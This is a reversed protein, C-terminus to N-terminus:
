MSRANLIIQYDKTQFLNEKALGLVPKEMYLPVANKEISNTIYMAKLTVVPLLGHEQGLSHFPIYRVAPMERQFVDKLVDEQIIHVPQNILPDILLNGTDLFGKLLLTEQETQLLIEYSLKELKQYEIEYLVLMCFSFAILGCLWFYNGDGLTIFIWNIVGGMLMTITYTKFFNQFFGKISKEKFAIMLTLPNWVMHLLIQYLQYDSLLLFLVVSGTAGFVSSLVLRWISSRSKKLIRVLILVLFDMFFNTVWFVDPYFQYRM